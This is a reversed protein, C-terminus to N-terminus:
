RHETLSTYFCVSFLTLCHCFCLFQHTMNSFIFLYGQVHIEHRSNILQHCIAFATSDNVSLSYTLAFSFGRESYNHLGLHMASELKLRLRLWFQQLRRGLYINCCLVLYSFACLSLFREKM